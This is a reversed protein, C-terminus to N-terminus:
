CKGRPVPIGLILEWSEYIAESISEEDEYDNLTVFQSGSPDIIYRINRLGYPTLAREPLEGYICGHVKFYEILWGVTYWTGVRVPM